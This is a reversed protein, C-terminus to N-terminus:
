WTAVNHSLCSWASWLVVLFCLQPHSLSYFSNRCIRSPRNSNTRGIRQHHLHTRFVTHITMVPEGFIFAYNIRARSWVILNFAILLSLLVLVFFGGYVQLLANWAPIAARAEPQFGICFMNISAKCLFKAQSMTSFYIGQVLAPLGLGIFVGSRFAKSHHTKRQTTARLKSLAEKRDGSGASPTSNSLSRLCLIMKFCVLARLM